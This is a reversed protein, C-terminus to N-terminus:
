NNQDNDEDEEWPTISNYLIKGQLGSEAIYRAAALRAKQKWIEIAFPM